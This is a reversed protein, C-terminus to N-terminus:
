LKSNLTNNEKNYNQTNKIIGRVIMFVALIAGLIIATTGAIYKTLQEDNVDIIIRTGGDDRVVLQSYSFAILNLPGMDNQLWYEKDGVTRKKAEVFHQWYSNNEKTNTIEQVTIVEGTPAVELAVDSRVFYILLNDGDWELGFSGYSLFKYGYQFAGDQSYVCITRENGSSALGVAIMHDENVDFCVISSASPEVTILTLDINAIFRKQEEVPKEETAFGTNMASVCLIGQAIFFVSLLIALSYKFSRM